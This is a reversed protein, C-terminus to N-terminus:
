IFFLLITTFCNWISSLISYENILDNVGYDSLDKSAIGAVIFNITLPFDTSKLFRSPELGEIGLFGM